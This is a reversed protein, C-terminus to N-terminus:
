HAGEDRGDRAVVVEQQVEVAAHPDAVERRRPGGVGDGRQALGALADREDRVVRAVALVLEHALEPAEAETGRALLDDRDAAGDLEHQRLGAVRGREDDARRRHVPVHGVRPQPDEVAGVEGRAGVDDDDCAVLAEVVGLQAAGELGDQAAGLQHAGRAVRGEGSGMLLRARM